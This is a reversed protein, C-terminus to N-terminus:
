LFRKTNKKAWKNMCQILSLYIIKEASEINPLSNKPRLYKRIEKNM